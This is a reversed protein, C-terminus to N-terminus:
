PTAECLQGRPNTRPWRVGDDRFAVEFARMMACVRDDNQLTGTIRTGDWKAGGIVTYDEGAARVEFTVQDHELTARYIHEGEIHHAAKM